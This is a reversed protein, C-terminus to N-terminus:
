TVTYLIFEGIVSLLERSALPPLPQCLLIDDHRNDANVTDASKHPQLAYYRSQRVQLLYQQLYKTMDTITCHVTENSLPISDIAKSANDGVIV